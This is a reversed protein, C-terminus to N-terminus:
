EIPNGSEQHYSGSLASAIRHLEAAAAEETKRAPDRCAGGKGPQAQRLIWRISRQVAKRREAVQFIRAIKRMEIIRGRIRRGSSREIELRGVPVVVLVGLGEGLITGDAQTDFPRADGTPSM